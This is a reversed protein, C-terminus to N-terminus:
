RKKMCTIQLLLSFKIIRGTLSIANCYLASRETVNQCFIKHLKKAFMIINQVTKKQLMEYQETESSSNGRPIHPFERNEGYMSYM